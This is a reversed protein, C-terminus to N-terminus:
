CLQSRAVLPASPMELAEILSDIDVPKVLHEDFGAERSRAVDNPQGYGTLAVLRTTRRHVDGRIRGALEYGDMVPLGIDLVAVDADFSELAILAQPGNYAIAVEHGLALLLEGLSEAADINDDVLLIRHREHSPAPETAVSPVHGGGAAPRSLDLAPLRVTFRSGKAPGGSEATVSGGHLKVLSHVLGLGL